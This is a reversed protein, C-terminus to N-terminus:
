TKSNTFVKNTEEVFESYVIGSAYSELAQKIYPIVNAPLETLPFWSVDGCRGEEMNSVEGSWKDARFFFDVREHDDCHRYMIHAISINKPTLDIDIEEVVERITGATPAEGAELHGAPLSYDGDHYGTNFRRLMPIKGDKELIIYGAPVVTFYNRNSQLPM